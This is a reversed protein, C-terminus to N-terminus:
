EGFLESHTGIRLLYVIDDEIAYMVLLDGGIHFERFKFFNGKLQHDKYQAPLEKGNALISIADIFSQFHKDQMTKFHKAFDKKFQKHRSIKM